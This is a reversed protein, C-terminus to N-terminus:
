MYAMCTLWAQRVSFCLALDKRKLSIRAGMYIYIFYTHANIYM